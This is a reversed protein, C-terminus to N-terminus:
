KWPDVAAKLIRRQRMSQLAQEVGDLGVEESILASHLESSEQLREVAAAFTAPRHHYVGRVTLESYHLRHTDLEVTTGPACGGFLVVTGGPAATAM